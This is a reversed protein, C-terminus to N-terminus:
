KDKRSTEQKGDIYNRAHRWRRFEIISLEQTLVEWGNGPQTMRLYHGEYLLAWEEKRRTM